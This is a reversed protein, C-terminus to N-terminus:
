NTSSLIDLVPGVAVQACGYSGQYGWGGHGYNYVVSIGNITEKSIRVGGERVPRFGVGHRIIDISDIGKGDALRPCIEVARKM